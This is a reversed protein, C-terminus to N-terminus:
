PTPALSTESPFSAHTPEAQPSIEAIMDEILAWFNAEGPYGWIRGVERRGDVLVFVPTLHEVKLFNLDKPIPQYIDVRRLPAQRGIPTRPYIPAIERDFAECYPCGTREFMILKAAHATATSALCSLALGVSLCTRPLFRTMRDYNELM